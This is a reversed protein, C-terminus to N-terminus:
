RGAIGVNKRGGEGKWEVEKIEEKMGDGEWGKRVETRKGNGGVKEKRMGM